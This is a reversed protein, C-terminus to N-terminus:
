TRRKQSLAGFQRRPAYGGGHHNADQVKRLRTSDMLAQQSFHHRAIRPRRDDHGACPQPNGIVTLAAEVSRTFGPAQRQTQASGPSQAIRSDEIVFGPQEPLVDNRSAINPLIGGVPPELSGRPAQSAKPTVQRLVQFPGQGIMGMGPKDTRQGETILARHCGLLPSYEAVGTRAM